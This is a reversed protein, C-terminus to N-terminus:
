LFANELMKTAAPIILIESAKIKAGSYWCIPIDNETNIVSIKTVMEINIYKCLLPM